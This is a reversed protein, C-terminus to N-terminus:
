PAGCVGTRMRVAHMRKSENVHGGCCAPGRGRAYASANMQLTVSRVVAVPAATCTSDVASKSRGAKLFRM